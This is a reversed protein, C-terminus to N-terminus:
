KQPMGYVCHSHSRGRAREEREEGSKGRFGGEREVQDAWYASGSPAAASALKVVIFLQRLVKPQM